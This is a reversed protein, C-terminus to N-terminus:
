PGILFRNREAADAPQADRNRETLEVLAVDPRRKVDEIYASGERRQLEDHRLVKPALNRVNIDM